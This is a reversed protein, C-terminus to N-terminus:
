CPTTKPTRMRHVWRGTYGSHLLLPSCTTKRAARIIGFSVDDDTLWEVGGDRLASEARREPPIFQVAGAVDEGVHMLLSFPNQASAGFRRGWDRLVQENDPLLGEMYARIVEDGHTPQALPVSLSLPYAVGSEQWDPAYTFAMRGRSDQVVTGSVVGNLLVALEQQM